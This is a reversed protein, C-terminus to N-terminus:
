GRPPNTTIHFVCSTIGKQIPSDAEEESCCKDVSRLQISLTPIVQVKLPIYIVDSFRLLSPGASFEKLSVMRVIPHTHTSAFSSSCESVMVYFLDDDFFAKRRPRATRLNRLDIALEQLGIYARPSVTIPQSLQCTFSHSNNLPYSTLSDSSKVYVYM